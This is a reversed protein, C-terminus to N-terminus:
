GAARLAGFASEQLWARLAEAPLPRSMYYGQATDCALKHLLEWGAASEVGEAAVKLGLNHALEVISHVIKANSADDAMDMVFSRDIKVEHVPLQKLYGLSSYGTGFDDIAFSVGADSLRTIVALAQQPDEMM